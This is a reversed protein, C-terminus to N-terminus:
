MKEPDYEIDVGCDFCSYVIKVKPPINPIVSRIPILVETMEEGCLNCETM